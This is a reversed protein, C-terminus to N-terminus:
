PRALSRILKQYALVEPQIAHEPYHTQLFDLLKVALVPQRLQEFLLGAAMLYLRPLHESDPYRHHFGHILRVASTADGAAKLMEALPLYHAEHAPKFEPNVRLCDVLVEVAQRIQKDALLDTILDRGLACLTASDDLMKILRHLRLRRTLDHPRTKLFYQLEAAAAVHDGRAMFTEYLDLEPPSDDGVDAQDRGEPEFDLAEHYQYIVYGMLHFMVLLYYASVADALLSYMPSYPHSYVWGLANQWAIHLCYLLGYLGAYAWGLRRILDILLFPNLANLLSRTMALVIVSAPLVLWFLMAFLLVAKSGLNKGLLSAVQYGTIIVAAQKFPLAYGGIMVKASFPAQPYGDATHSLVEYAYKLLVLMVVVSFLWGVVGAQSLWAHLIAYGTCVFLAPPLLPYLFFRPLRSWFPTISHRKGM